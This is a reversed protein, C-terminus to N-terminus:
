YASTGIRRFVQVALGRRGYSHLRRVSAKSTPLASHNKHPPHPPKAAILSASSRRVRNQPARLLRRQDYIGDPSPLCLMIWESTSPHTAAATANSNHGAPDLADAREKRNKEHQPLLPGRQSSINLSCTLRFTPVCQTESLTTHEISRPFSTSQCPERPSTNAKRSSRSVDKQHTQEM